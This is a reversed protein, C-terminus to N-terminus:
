QGETTKNNYIEYREGHITYESDWNNNYKTMWENNEVRNCYIREILVHITGIHIMMM